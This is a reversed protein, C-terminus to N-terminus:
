EYLIKSKFKGPFIYMKKKPLNRPFNRMCSFHWDKRIKLDARFFHIAPSASLGPCTFFLLKEKFLEKRTRVACFLAVTMWKQRSGKDTLGVFFLHSSLSSSFFYLIYSFSAALEVHILRPSSFHTTSSRVIFSLHMQSSQAPSYSLDKGNNNITPHFLLNNVRTHSSHGNETDIYRLNNPFNKFPLHVRCPWKNKSWLNKKKESFTSPIKSFICRYLAKLTPARLPHNQFIKRM